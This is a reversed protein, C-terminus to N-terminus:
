KRILLLFPIFLALHVPKFALNLLNNKDDTNTKFIYILITGQITLGVGCGQITPTGLV